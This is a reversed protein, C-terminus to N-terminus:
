LTKVYELGADDKILGVGPAYWSETVNDIPMGDMSVLKEQFHCVNNFTKGGVTVTEFGVFTTTTAVAFTTSKGAETFTDSSDTNITQGPSMNFNYLFFAPDFVSTSTTQGNEL